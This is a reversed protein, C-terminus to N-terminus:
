NHNAPLFSSDRSCLLLSSPKGGQSVGIELSDSTTGGYVALVGGSGASDGGAPLELTFNGLGLSSLTVEYVNPEGSNPGPIVNSSNSLFVRPPDNSATTCLALSVTIQSASPLSFLVPTSSATSFNNGTLTVPTDFSLSSQTSQSRILPFSFVFALAIAWLSQELMKQGLRTWNMDLRSPDISSMILYMSVYLFAAYWGLGYFCFLRLM